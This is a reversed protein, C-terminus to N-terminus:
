ASARISFGASHDNANAYGLLGLWGVGLEVWYYFWFDPDTDKRM